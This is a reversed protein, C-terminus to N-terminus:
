KPQQPQPTLSPAPVTPAPAPAAQVVPAVASPPLAPAVPTPVCPKPQRIDQIVEDTTPLTIGTKNEIQQRQKDIQRQLAPPIKFHFRNPLTAPNTTGNCPSLNGQTQLPQPPPTQQGYGLVPFVVAAFLLISVLTKM